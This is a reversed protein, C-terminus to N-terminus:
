VARRFNRANDAIQGETPVSMEMIANTLAGFDEDAQILVYMIFVEQDTMDSTLNGLMARVQDVQVMDDDDPESLVGFNLMANAVLANMQGQWQEVARPYDPHALNEVWEVKAGLLRVEQLPPRPQPHKARFNMTLSAVSVPPRRITVTRGSVPLEVERTTTAIV